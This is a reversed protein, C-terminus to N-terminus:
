DGDYLINLFTYSYRSYESDVVSITHILEQSRLTLAQKEEEFLQRSTEFELQLQQRLSVEASLNRETEASDRAATESRVQALEDKVESLARRLSEIETTLNRTVCKNAELELDM